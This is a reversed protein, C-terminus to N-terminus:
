IAGTTIKGYQRFVMESLEPLYVGVTKQRGRSSTGQGGSYFAAGQGMLVLAHARSLEVIPPPYQHVRVNTGTSHIAATSGCAGREVQFVRRYQVTDASTHAGLLSGNIARDVYLTDGDIATVYMTESNIVIEDHISFATGSSVAIANESQRADIDATITEGSDASFRDLLVMYESDILVLSRTEAVYVTNPALTHLTIFSTTSDIDATINLQASSPTDWYGTKGTIAISRQSSSGGALTTGSTRDLEMYTYPPEEKRDARRLYVDSLDVSTSGIVVSSLSIFDNVFWLRFSGYTLDEPYDYYETTIAPYFRRNMDGDVNRSAAVTRSDLLRANTSVVELGSSRALAERSVYSIEREM